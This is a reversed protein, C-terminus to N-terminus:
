HHYIKFHFRQIISPLLVLLQDPESHLCEQQLYQTHIHTDPHVMLLASSFAIWVSHLAATISFDLDSKRYSVCVTLSCM